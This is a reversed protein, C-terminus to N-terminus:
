FGVDPVLTATPEATFRTTLEPGGIAEAETVGVESANPLWANFTAEGPWDTVIAFVPVVTSGILEIESVPLLGPWNERLM